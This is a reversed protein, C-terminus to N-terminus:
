SLVSTIAWSSNSNATFHVMKAVQTGCSVGAAFGWPAVGLM